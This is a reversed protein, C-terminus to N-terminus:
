RGMECKAKHQKKRWLRAVPGSAVRAARCPVARPPQSRGPGLPRVELTGSRVCPEAGQGAVGRGVWIYVM